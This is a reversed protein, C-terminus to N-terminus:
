FSGTLIERIAWLRRARYAAADFPNSIANYRPPEIQQQNLV